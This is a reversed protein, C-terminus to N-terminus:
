AVMGGGRFDAIIMGTGFFGDELLRASQLGTARVGRMIFYKSLSTSLRMCALM